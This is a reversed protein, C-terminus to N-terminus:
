LSGSSPPVSGEHIVDLEGRVAEQSASSALPLPSLRPYKARRIVRNAAFDSEEHDQWALDEDVHFRHVPTAMTSRDIDPGPRALKLKSQGVIAQPPPKRCGKCSCRCCLPGLHKVPMWYFLETWFWRKTPRLIVQQSVLKKTDDDLQELADEDYLIIVMRKGEGVEEQLCAERLEFMPWDAQAFDSTFVFLHRKSDRLRDAIVERSTAKGGDRNPLFVKFDLAHTELRKTLEGKVWQRVDDRQCHVSIYIDKERSESSREDEMRDFPHLSLYRFCFLKLYKRLIILLIVFLLIVACMVAITIYLALPSGEPNCGLSQDSIDLFFVGSSNSCLENDMGAFSSGRLWDALWTTTCDCVIANGGLNLDTPQIVDKLVRPVTTLNNNDLHLSKVNTLHRIAAEEIHGLRNYGLSLHTVRSLYNRHPLERIDNDEFRLILKGQPLHRPMEKLRASRCDVDSVDTHPTFTCQCGPPCLTVDTCIFETYNLDLIVSGQLRPPSKCTVDYYQYDFSTKLPYTSSLQSMYYVFDYIHCDCVFPNNRLDFYGFVPRTYWLDAISSFGFIAFDSLSLTSFQNQQLGIYAAISSPSQQVTWSMNNSFYHIENGTLDFVILNPLLFPWPEFSTLKNKSLDVTELQSLGAHFASPHIYEIQNSSFDVTTMVALGDFIGSHLETFANHSMQLRVLYPLCGFVDASSYSINNNSLDLYQIFNYTCLNPPMQQLDSGTFEFERLYDTKVTLTPISPNPTNANCSVQLRLFSNTVLATASNPVTTCLCGKPCKVLQAHCLALSGFLVLIVVRSTAM